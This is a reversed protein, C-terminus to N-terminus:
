ELVTGSHHFQFCCVSIYEKLFFDKFSLPGRKWTLTQKQHEDLNKIDFILQDPSFFQTAIVLFNGKHKRVSCILGDKEGEGKIFFGKRHKQEPSSSSRGHVTRFSHNEEKKECDAMAVSKQLCDRSHNEFFCNTERQANTSRPQWIKTRPTANVASDMTIDKICVRYLSILQLEGTMQNNHRCIPAVIPLLILFSGTKGIACFSFSYFSIVQYHTSNYIYKKM